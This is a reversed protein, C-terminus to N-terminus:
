KRLWTFQDVVQQLNKDRIVQFGVLLKIVVVALKDVLEAQLVLVVQGLHLQQCEHLQSLCARLDGEALDLGM